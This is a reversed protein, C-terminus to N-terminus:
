KVKKNYNVLYMISDLLLLAGIFKWILGAILIELIGVIIGLVGAYISGKKALKVCLFMVGLYVFSIVYSLLTYETVDYKLVNTLYLIKFIIEGAVEIVGCWFIANFIDVVSKRRKKFKNKEM